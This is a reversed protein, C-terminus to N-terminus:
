GCRVRLKHDKATKIMHRTGVSKGLPFAILADAYEAMQLNRKYGASRGFKHWQAPFRTCSYGRESAYREGLSDAGRAGGSVIEVSHPQVKSLLFDCRQKLEKYDSYDRSGAIIVKFSM